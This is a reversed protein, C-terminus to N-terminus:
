EASVNKARCSGCGCRPAPKFLDRFVLHVLEKPTLRFSEGIALFEGMRQAWDDEHRPTLAEGKLLVQRAYERLVRLHERMLERPSAAVVTTM